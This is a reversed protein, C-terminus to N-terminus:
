KYFYGHNLKLVKVLRLELVPRAFEEELVLISRKYRNYAFEYDGKKIANVCVNVINEYINNYIVINNEINNITEVIIPATEYYHEIDEKSVFTDRFWRLINLEECNDDFNQSMHKMCATTLFCSTDTVEKTGETTDVINGKGTNVDINIHISRHEKEPDSGYINIHDKDRKDTHVEIIVGKENKYKESM